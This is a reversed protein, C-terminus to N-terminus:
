QEASPSRPVAEHALARKRKLGGISFLIAAAIAMLLALTQTGLIASHIVPDFTVTFGGGDTPTRAAVFRAELMRAFYAVSFLSSAALFAASSLSLYRVVGVLAAITLACLALSTLWTQISFLMLSM